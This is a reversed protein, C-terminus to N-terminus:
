GRADGGTLAAFHRLMRAGDAQRGTFIEFARAAQYVAMYGGHVSHCGRARAARLLATDLPFYVVEAVWLEPRLLEEPVPIGPHADTGTPTAHVLGDAISGSELTSVASIQAKVFTAALKRALADARERDADFIDLRGVGLTMLATATAAGAGGAGVQLVHAGTIDGIRLRIGASFGFADTNHGETRGNVIRVTNVAGIAAADAQVVDLLPMIRQKYPHTINLGDFGLDIAAKLIDPLRDCTPDRGALDILRYLYRLGQAEGEAMHMAPSLSQGIGQGVLGILVSGSSGRASLVGASEQGMTRVKDQAAIRRRSTSFTSVLENSDLLIKAGASKGM